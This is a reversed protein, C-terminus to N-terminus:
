LLLADFSNPDVKEAAEITEGWWDMMKRRGTLWEASNYAGRIENEEVHALQREIWDPNWGHENAMTSATGRLGHVTLRSHYGMRYLAYIMTNASMTGSLTDASFLLGKKQPGIERLTAVAQPSLPVLHEREMKMRAAPIRWLPAAGDLNEIEQWDGFRIENTRLWTLLTLRIALTTKPEGDYDRLRQLFEPLQDARLSAMHKVRPRPQMLAGVDAAPNSTIKGGAIGVRFIQHITQRLRKAIDLAGRAEARRVAEVVKLPVIEDCRLEGLIPLADRELRAWTRDIHAEDKGKKWTTFWEDALERFLPAASETPSAQPDIDKSLAFKVDSRRARADTLSIEPYAGISLTRQQSGFRYAIRWLRSGSPQVLLHLGGGDSLKYARDRRNAKRCQMDTLPM